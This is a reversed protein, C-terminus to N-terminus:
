SIQMRLDTCLEGTVKYTSVTIIHSQNKLFCESPQKTVKESYFLLNLNKRKSELHGFCLM